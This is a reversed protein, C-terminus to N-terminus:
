ETQYEASNIILTDDDKWTIKMNMFEGWEGHYVTKPQKEIRFVIANILCREHVVVETNGGTAGHNNDLLEAYYRGSPSEVSDIVTTKGINGFIAAFFSFQCIPIIM